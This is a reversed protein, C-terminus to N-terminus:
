ENISTELKQVRETRKCNEHYHCKYCKEKTETNGYPCDWEEVFSLQIETDGIQEFELMNGNEVGIKDLLEQPLKICGNEVKAYYYKAM